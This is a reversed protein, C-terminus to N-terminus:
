RGEGSARIQRLLSSAAQSSVGLRARLADRTIQRGHEPLHDAAARRAADALSLDPVTAAFRPMEM